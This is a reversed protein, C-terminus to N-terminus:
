NSTSFQEKEKDTILQVKKGSRSEDFFSELYAGAIKKGLEPGIVQAGMTLIQANNSKQAREASYIDHCTAARIGPCKNAAIAVGLGTGCILIGREVEGKNIADAVEFSVNPYDVAECSHCGYDIVEHGAEEVFVKITEKFDFGNHDSGIAVKM